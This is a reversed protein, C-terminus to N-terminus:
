QICSCQHTSNMKNMKWQKCIKVFYIKLCYFILVYKRDDLARHSHTLSFHLSFGNPSLLFHSPFFRIDAISGTQVQFITFKIM